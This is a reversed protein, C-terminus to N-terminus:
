YEQGASIILKLVGMELCAKRSWIAIDLMRMFPTTLARCLVRDTTQLIRVHIYQQPRQFRSEELLSWVVGPSSSQGLRWGRIAGDCNELDEVNIILARLYLQDM